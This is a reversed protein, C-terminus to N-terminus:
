LRLLWGLVEGHRSVIKMVRRTVLRQKRKRLGLGVRRHSRLSHRLSPSQFAQSRNRLKVNLTGIATVLSDM